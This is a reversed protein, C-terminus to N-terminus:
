SRKYCKPKLKCSFGKGDNLSDTIATLAPLGRCAPEVDHVRSPTCLVARGVEGRLLQPSADDHSSLTSLEGAIV